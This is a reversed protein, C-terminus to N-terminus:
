GNRNFLGRHKSGAPPAEEGLREFLSSLDGGEGRGENGSAPAREHGPNSHKGSGFLKKGSTAPESKKGFLSAPIPAPPTAEPAAFLGSGSRGRGKNKARPVESATGSGAFLGGGTAASRASRSQDPMATGPTSKGAGAKRPLAAADTANASEPLLSTRGKGKLASTARTDTAPAIVPAPPRAFLGTRPAPQPATNAPAHRAPLGPPLHAGAHPPESLPPQTKRRAPPLAEAAPAPPHAVSKIPPHVPVSSPAHGLKSLGRAIKSGLTLGKTKAAPAPAPPAQNQWLQKESQLLQPPPPRKEVGVTKFLPWREQAAESLKSFEKFQNNKGGIAKFLGGIDDDHVTM